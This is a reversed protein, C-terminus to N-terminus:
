HSFNVLSSTTNSYRVLPFLQPSVILTSLLVMLEKSRLSTPNPTPTTLERLKMAKLRSLKWVIVMMPWSQYQKSSMFSDTEGKAGKSETDRTLAVIKYGADSLYRAVSNGQSGTATFIVIKKDTNSSMKSTDDYPTIRLPIHHKRQHPPFSSQAVPLIHRCWKYTESTM